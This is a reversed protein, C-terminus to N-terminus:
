RRSKRTNKTSRKLRRSTRNRKTRRGGTSTEVNNWSYEPQDQLRKKADEMENRLGKTEVIIKMDPDKMDNLNEAIGIWMHLERDRYQLAYIVTEVLQDFNQQINTQAM